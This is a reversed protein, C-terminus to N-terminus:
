LKLVKLGIPHTDKPLIQILYFGKMWNQGLSLSSHNSSIQEILMGNSNYVQIEANLPLNTLQFTNNSVTNLLFDTQSKRNETFLWTDDKYYTLFVNYSTPSNLEIDGMQFHESFQGTLIVQNVEPVHMDQLGSREGTLQSHNLVEGEEDLKVFFIEPDGCCLNYEIVVENFHIHNLYHGSIYIEGTRDMEFAIVSEMSTSYFRKAWDFDGNSSFYAVYIDEDFDATQLQTNDFSINGSFNGAMTINGDSDCSIKVGPKLDSGEPQYLWVVELNSNLKLLYIGLMDEVELLEEGIQLNQYFDGAIYINGMNDATVDSVYDVSEGGFTVYQLLNGNLDFQSAFFDTGDVGWITDNELITFNYYRGVINIKGNHINLSEFSESNPGGFTKVWQLEGTTNLKILYMDFSGNSTFSEGGFNLNGSFKGMLYINGDNDCAVEQAIQNGLGGDSLYWETDGDENVVFVLLDDGDEANLQTEDITFSTNFHTFCIINDQNDSSVAQINNAFNDHGYQNAWYYDM